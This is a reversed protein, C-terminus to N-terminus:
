VIWSERRALFTSGYSLDMELIMVDMIAVGELVGLMSSSNLIMSRSAEQVMIEKFSNVEGRLRM